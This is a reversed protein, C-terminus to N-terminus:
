RDLHHHRDNNLITRKSTHAVVRYYPKDTRGQTRSDTLGDTISKEQRASVIVAFSKHRTVLTTKLLLRALIAMFNHVNSHM